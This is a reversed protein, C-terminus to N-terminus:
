CGGPSARWEALAWLMHSLSTPPLDPLMAHVRSTLNGLLYADPRYACRALGWCAFALQPGDLMYLKATVVQTVSHRM